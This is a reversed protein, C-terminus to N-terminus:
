IIVINSLEPYENLAIPLLLYYIYAPVLFTLRKFFMKEVLLDDWHSKTKKTFVSVLKLIIRLAIYYAILGIIIAVIVESLDRLIIALNESLGLSILWEKLLIDLKNLM